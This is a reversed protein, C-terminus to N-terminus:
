KLPGKSLVGYRKKLQKLTVNVDAAYPTGAFLKGGKSSELVTITHKFYQRTIEKAVPDTRVIPEVFYKYEPDYLGWALVQEALGYKTVLFLQNKEDLDFIVPVMLGETDAAVNRCIGSAKFYANLYKRVAEKSEETGLTNCLSDIIPTTAAPILTSSEEIVKNVKNRIEKRKVDDGEAAVCRVQILLLSGLLMLITRRCRTM